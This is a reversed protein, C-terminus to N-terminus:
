TRSAYQNYGARVIAGSGPAIADAFISGVGVAAGWAAQRKEKRLEDRKAKLQENLDDIYALQDRKNENIKNVQMEMKKTQSEVVSDLSDSLKKRANNSMARVNGVANNSTKFRDLQKQLNVNAVDGSQNISSALIDRSDEIQNQADQTTEAIMGPIQDIGEQIDGLADSFNDVALLNGVAMSGGGIVNTIGGVGELSQNVKDYMGLEAVQPTDAPAIPSVPDVLQSQTVDTDAYEPVRYEPNNMLEEGTIQPTFDFESKPTEVTGAPVSRINQMEEMVDDSIFRNVDVGEAQLNPQKRGISVDVPPGTPAPMTTETSTPMSKTQKVIPNSDQKPTWNLGEAGAMMMEEETDFDKAFYTSVGTDFDETNIPPPLTPLNVTKITNPDYVSNGQTVSVTKLTNPDYAFGSQQSPGIFPQPGQVPPLSQYVTDLSSTNYPLQTVNQIQISSPEMSNFNFVDTESDYRMISDDLVLGSGASYYPSNAISYNRNAV